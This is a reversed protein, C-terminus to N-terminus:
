AGGIDQPAVSVSKVVAHCESGINLGLSNASRRTIRALIKGAPTQISVMAGPGDGTRMSIIRGPLINLASLGTPRDKSLIVDQATIRVRVRMGIPKSLRPLLLPVGCADLETLGDAHHKSIIAELIAGAARVGTPTFSPDSLVESASGQQAVKGDELAVVTTALRAVETASHSVYLIPIRAEDRLTEFYPLIEAKRAADLAALPEDALILEPGALLARGIAVRQKEGGSLGNPARDLLSGIGLMDVVRDISETRASQSAFWRGYKLNQRVSLHPFLRAEQFIYGLRRKHPAVNTGNNSDFLVRGNVVVKGTQPRLLGAVANIVTTKGAGSRGFLATLGDPADFKISFNTEGVSHQIAVSLSM